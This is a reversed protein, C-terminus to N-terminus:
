KKLYKKVEKINKQADSIGLDYQAQLKDVNKEIRKIHLDKSPRIVLVKGEKELEKLKEVSDNYVKYRSNIKEVLEPYKRYFTKAILPNRKKKRYNIDRTLVVIIKDYGLEMMKEYPISDALAGDLYKNGDVEVMKSVFPMSSSARLLEIQKECNTIKPYEGEGTEVNTIVAYYDIKSKEFEKEDFKDLEFPIKYYAFDKNVINGTKILSRISIYRKDRIYNKNYRITRGKQKSAYNVGFLAGASVGIIGDIKIKEDLFVDLVGATYVGRMAGGELVLGVKM